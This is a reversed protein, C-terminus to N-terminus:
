KCAFNAGDKGAFKQAFGATIWVPNRVWAYVREVQDYISPIIQVASSGLGFVAVKKGSM